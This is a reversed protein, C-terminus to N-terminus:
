GEFEPLAKLEAETMNVVVVDTTSDFMLMSPELAVTKAGIGLFGGTTVLIQQAAGPVGMIETVEGVTDGDPSQVSKGILEDPSMTELIGATAGEAEASAGTTTGVVADAGTEVTGEATTEAGSMMDGAADTTNDIAEGTADVANGIADGTADVADGTTEAVSDLVGGGEADAEAGVGVEAGIDAEAGADVSNETTPAVVQSDSEVGVNAEADVGASGSSQAFAAPSLLALTSVATILHKRM